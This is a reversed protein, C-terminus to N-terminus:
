GSEGKRSQDGRKSRDGQDDEPRDRVLRRGSERQWHRGDLRRVRTCSDENLTPGEDNEEEKRIETLLLDSTRNVRYRLRQHRLPSAETKSGSGTGSHNRVGYGYEVGRCAFRIAKGDARHDRSRGRTANVGSLRIGMVKLTAQLAGNLIKYQIAISELTAEHGPADHEAASGGAKVVGVNEVTDDKALNWHYIVKTVEVDAGEVTIKAKKIDEKKWKGEEATLTTNPDNARLIKQGLVMWDDARASAVAGLLLLSAALAGSAFRVKM